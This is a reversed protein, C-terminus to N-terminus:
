MTKDMVDPVHRFCFLEFAGQRSMSYFAESIRIGNITAVIIVKSKNHRSITEIISM